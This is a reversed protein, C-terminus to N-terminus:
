RKPEGGEGWPEKMSDILDLSSHQLNNGITSLKLILDRKCKATPTLGM